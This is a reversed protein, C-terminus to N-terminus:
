QQINVSKPFAFFKIFLCPDEQLYKVQLVDIAVIIDNEFAVDIMM